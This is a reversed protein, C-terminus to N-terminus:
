ELLNITNTSHVIQHSIEIEGTTTDTFTAIGSFRIFPYLTNTITDVRYEVSTNDLTAELITKSIPVTPGEDTIELVIGKGDVVLQKVTDFNIPVGNGIQSIQFITAAIEVKIISYNPGVWVWIPQQAQTQSYIPFNDTTQIFPIIFLSDGTSLNGYSESGEAEYETKVISELDPMVPIESINARIFAQAAVIADKQDLNQVVGSIQNTYVILNNTASYTLFKPETPHSWVDNRSSEHQLGQNQAITQAVTSLPLQNEIKYVPLVSPLQPKKATVTIKQIPIQNLVANSEINPQDPIVADTPVVQKDQTFLQFLISIVIVVALIILLLKTKSWETETKNM